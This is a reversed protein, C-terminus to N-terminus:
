VDGFSRVVGGHPWVVAGPRKSYESWTLYVPAGPPQVGDPWFLSKCVRELTELNMCTFPWVDGEPDYLGVKGFKWVDHQVWAGLHWAQDLYEYLRQIEKDQLNDGKSRRGDAVKEAIQNAKPAYTSDWSIVEM